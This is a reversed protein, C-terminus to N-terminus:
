SGKYGAPGAQLLTSAGIIIPMLLHPKVLKKWTLPGHPIGKPVYVATTTNFTRAQGGIAFELEAGLEEPATPDNGINLVIEEYDHSHEPIPPNVPPMGPIWGFDVYANCGPILDGSVYIGAPSKIAETVETGDLYAPKRVLYKEYDVTDEKRPTGPPLTKPWSDRAAEPGLMVSIELHPKSFSKWTAPGHRLGKPIYMASTTHFTLPQGGMYYEIEGGLEGQNVADGGVYLLIEEYHHFHEPIRTNAEPLGRIWRMECHKDCGPVLKNSMYTMVGSEYVPKTIFYKKYSQTAM